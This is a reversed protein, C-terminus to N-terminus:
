RRSNWKDVKLFFSGGGLHPHCFFETVDPIVGAAHRLASSGPTFLGPTDCYAGVDTDDLFDKNKRGEAARCFGGAM